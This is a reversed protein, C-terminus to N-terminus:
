GAPRESLLKRLFFASIPKYEIAISYLILSVITIIIAGSFWFRRNVFFLTAPLLLYYQEEISLSWMHLLVKYEATPSFYDTQQWLVINALFVVAGVLQQLFHDWEVSNLLWPSLILCIFLVTYAAPFLRLARRAYFDTFSFSGAQIARAVQTTILYGSIVFFIDVGLYGGAIRPTQAHFLVVLLVALGRLAQIDVRFNHQM